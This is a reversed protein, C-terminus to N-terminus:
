TMIFKGPIEGKLISSKKGDSPPSKKVVPQSGCRVAFVQNWIHGIVNDPANVDKVSSDSVSNSPDPSTSKLNSKNLSVLHASIIRNSSDPDLKNKRQAMRHTRLFFLPPQLCGEPLLGSELHELFSVINYHHQFIIVTAAIGDSNVMVLEARDGIRAVKVCVLNNHICNNVMKIVTYTLSRKLFTSPCAYSSLRM